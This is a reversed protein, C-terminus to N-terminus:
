NSQPPHVAYYTQALRAAEDTSIKGTDTIEELTEFAKGRIEENSDQLLATLLKKATDPRADFLHTVYIAAVDRDDIHDSATLAALIDAARGPDTAALLRIEDDLKNLLIEQTHDDLLQHRLQVWEDTTLSLTAREDSPQERQM